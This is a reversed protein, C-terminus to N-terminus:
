NRENKMEERKVRRYSDFDFELSTCNEIFRDYISQGLDKILEIKNKNSILITSRTKEYRENLIMFLYKIEEKSEFKAIEDIVLVPYESYRYLIDKRSEKAKFSKCDEIENEIQYSKVYHSGWCERCILGSLMTKGTGHNGVLWLTKNFPENIFDLVQKLIQEQKPNNCIYDSPKYNWYREGIGSDKARQLKENEVFEDM